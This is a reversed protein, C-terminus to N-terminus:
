EDGAAAAAMEAGAAGAGGGANQKRSSPSKATDLVTDAHIWRVFEDLDIEGDTNGDDIAGFLRKLDKDAM